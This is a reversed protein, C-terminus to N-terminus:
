SSIEHRETAAPKKPYGYHRSIHRSVKPQVLIRKYLKQACNSKIHYREEGASYTEVVGFLGLNCNAVGHAYCEAAAGDVQRRNCDTDIQDREIEFPMVDTLMKRPALIVM